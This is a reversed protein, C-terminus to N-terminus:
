ADELKQAVCFAMAMSRCHSISLDISISGEDIVDENFKVIPPADDSSVICIDRMDLRKIVKSLAKIISEKAVFRGALFEARKGGKKHFIELEQDSLMKSVVNEKDVFSEFRSIEECDVGIGILSSVSQATVMDHLGM